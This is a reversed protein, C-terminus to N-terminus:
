LHDLELLPCPNNDLWDELIPNLPLLMPAGWARESFELKLANQSKIYREQLYRDLAM